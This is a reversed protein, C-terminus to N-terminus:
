DNSLHITTFMEDTNLGTKLLYAQKLENFLEKAQFEELVKIHAADIKDSLESWEWDIYHKKITQDVHALLKYRIEASIDLQLAVSEFTKRATKMPLLLKSCRKAYIDWLNKHLRHDSYDYVFLQLPNSRDPLLHPRHKHTIHISNQLALIIDETPAISYLVTMPESTKHRFHLVYRNSDYKDANKTKHDSMSSLDSTYMGRMCFQLLYFALAQFDRIDQVKSIAERFLEPTCTQIITTVKKRRYNKHNVFAESVIGRRYAESVIAGIHNIYSNTSAPSLGKKAWKNVAQSLNPYNLHAFTIVKINLILKLANISNIYSQTTAKTRNLSFVDTIFGLVDQAVNDSSLKRCLEEWTIAQAEFLEFSDYMNNKIKDLRSSISPIANKIRLTKGDWSDKTASIGINRSFSLGKYRCKLVLQHKGSKNSYKQLYISVAMILSLYVSLYSIAKSVTFVKM